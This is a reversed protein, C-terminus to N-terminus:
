VFALHEVPYILQGNRHNDMTPTEGVDDCCWGETSSQESDCCFACWGECLRPVGLGFRRRGDEKAICRRSSTNVKPPPLALTPKINRTYQTSVQCIGSLIPAPPNTWKLFRLHSAVGLSRAVCPHCPSFCQVRARFQVKYCQQKRCWFAM